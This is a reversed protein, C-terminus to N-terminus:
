PKKRTEASLTEAVEYSVFDIFEAPSMRLVESQLTKKGPTKKLYGSLRVASDLDAAHWVHEIGWILTGDRLDVLNLRLGLTLHPYPRYETVTGSLVGDCRLSRRMRALEEMAYSGDPELLLGRWQPDGQNIRTIGFHQKRQVAVYLSKSVDTSIEPYSSENELEVLAVRGLENLPRSTDLFTAGALPSEKPRVYCGTGTLVTLLLGGMMIRIGWRLMM